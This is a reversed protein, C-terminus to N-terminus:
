PFVREPAPATGGSEPAPPTGGPEPAPAAEPEPAPSTGEAEQQGAMVSLLQTRDVVGLLRGGEVVRIPKDTGLATQVADRIVTGPPLEPGDLPEGPAPARAAWRLTLVNGKPVDAV